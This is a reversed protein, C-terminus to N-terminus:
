AYTVHPPQARRVPALCRAAGRPVLRFTHIALLRQGLAMARRFLAPSSTMPVRAGPATLEEAFRTTYGRTALLGYCYAMLAQPGVPFGYTEALRALSETAVNARTAAADRWLPIVARAGFSGRFHDLDPVLATAVVAPGPGLVNTLLSTLYLQRPSAARWLVPRMFDGLRADPLVWQRDFSRYAYRVPELCTADPGLERLPRLRADAQYLDAPASDLNRDRTQRFAVAREEPALLLLRRWRERLVEPTPGIPWTRKLQAGSVQWPFLETLRPWREYPTSSRPVFSDATASRWALDDLSHLRRLAGLKAQRDGAIRAYQVAAPVEPRSAAYRIGLAVAVPTRIAFVNDTKRAALHDGELDVIWLDDLLQRLKCRLGTFAPGRLYSAATVFCVVGAGARAEFVHRLAWRWFYVYANHLNKLHVGPTNSHLGGLNTQTEADGRQRRYPPNGLCVVIPAEFAECASLVDREEIVLGAARAACSAGPLTEFVRMRPVIRLSAAERVIALHALPYAGSGACPDVILVREDAFGAPCGLGDRLVHDLLRVQAGVLEAPTYYVGRSRRLAPDFADLFDQYLEPWACAEDHAGAFCEEFTRREAELAGVREVLERGGAAPGLYDIMNLKLIRYSRNSLMVFCVPIKHHAATWLASISYMAAGDSAIGVVKRDARALAAGLAGPLGPGIGGGRVKVLQAPERPAIAMEVHKTNTVGESFVLSQEPLARRIEHMLRPGSIPSADWNKRANIWYREHEQAVRAEASKRRETASQLAAGTMRERILCELEALGSKPDGLLGIEPRVNKGIEHTFCDLQLLRTGPPIAPEDPEPFILQFVPAGVVFLVDCDALTSRINKPSVFDVSGLYLPHCAPVNFESAYCEFMPAGLLEAVRTVETQAEALAISDGVMLM